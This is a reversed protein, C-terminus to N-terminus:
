QSVDCECDGERVFILTIISVSHSRQCALCVFHHKFECVTLTLDCDGPFSRRIFLLYVYFMVDQWLSKQQSSGLYRQVMFTIVVM